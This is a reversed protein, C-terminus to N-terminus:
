RALLICQLHLDLGKEEAQEVVHEVVFSSRILLLFHRKLANDFKEGRGVEHHVEVYVIVTVEM